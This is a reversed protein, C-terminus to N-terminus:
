DIRFTQLEVPVVGPGLFHGTIEGMGDGLIYTDILANTATNFVSLSDNMGEDHAVYLRTGDETISLGLVGAQTGVPITADIMLTATNIVSVTGSSLNGVYVKSSDSSVVVTFPFAGMPLSIPSGVVTNTTADIVTVTEDVFDTVYVRNGDPSAAVGQPRTGVAINSVMETVTDVVVVQGSGGSWDAAYLSGGDPSIAMGRLETGANVPTIDLTNTTADVVYINGGQTVYAKTGDPSVVVSYLGTNLGDATDIPSNALQMGTSGDFVFLGDLTTAVYIRSGDPSVAIGLPAEGVAVTDVVMESGTAFIVMDDTGFRPVYAKPAASLVSSALALVLVCIATFFASLNLM